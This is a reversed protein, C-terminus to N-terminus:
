VTYAPMIWLFKLSLFFIFLSPDTGQIKLPHCVEKDAKQGCQGQTNRQNQWHQIIPQFCVPSRLVERRAKLQSFKNHDKTSVQLRQWVLSQPVAIPLNPQPEPKAALCGDPIVLCLSPFLFSLTTPSNPILQCPTMVQCRHTYNVCKHTLICTCVCWYLLCFLSTCQLWLVPSPHLSHTHRNRNQTQTHTRTHAHTTNTQQLQEPTTLM